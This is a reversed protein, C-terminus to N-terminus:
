KSGPLPADATAPPSGPEAKIGAIVRLFTAFWQLPFFARNMIGQVEHSIPPSDRNIEGLILRLSNSLLLVAIVSGSARRKM